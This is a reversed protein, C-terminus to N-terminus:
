PSQICSKIKDVDIGLKLYLTRRTKTHSTKAQANRRQYYGQTNLEKQFAEDPHKFSQHVQLWCNLARRVQEVTLKRTGGKDLSLRIRSCLLFSLATVHLHRHICRWGRAELHDLGLEEKSVRFEAEIVWRGFAVRLVGRMTVGKEGVVENCLFFKTENTRVSRGVILTCRTSPLGSHTQRWVTLHKFKWVEPGKDTDKIVYRQWTQLMFKHSYKLLNYVERPPQSDDVRPRKKPRGRGTQEEQRIVDPKSTWVRTTNPIECVFRQERVDLADLFKSDRGYLEDFTWWAVILGNQLARDVLDMAIQPKTKFEVDDPIYAKKRRAPDCAWDWPLYLQSDLIAQFGPASYGLHVGVICNELKGRNGNYQRVVGATEDGSKHVGSEDILGISESHAHDKVVIEQIRDRLRQEDWKISELFRQLTRPAEDFELAITECNKRQLDSLQGQVYVKLLKRGAISKFCMGFLFLFSTLMGGVGKIEKLTMM